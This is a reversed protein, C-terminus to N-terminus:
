FNICRTEIKKENYASNADFLSKQNANFKKLLDTRKYKTLNIDREDLYSSTLKKLEEEDDSDTTIITDLFHSIFQNLFSEM